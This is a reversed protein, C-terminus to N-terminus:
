LEHMRPDEEGQIEFEDDVKAPEEEDAAEETYDINAEVQQSVVTILIRGEGADGGDGVTQTGLLEIVEIYLGRDVM